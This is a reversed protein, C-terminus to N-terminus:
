AARRTAAYAAARSERLRDLIAPLEPWPDGQLGPLRALQEFEAAVEGASRCRKAPDVETLRRLWAAFEAPIPDSSPLKAALERFVVGITYLDARVDVRNELAAEEPAAYAAAAKGKECRHIKVLWAPEGFGLVKLQGRRNVMLRSPRLSRHLFGARQAAVVAAVAQQAYRVLAKVPPGYLSLDALSAGDIWEMVVGYRDRASFLRDLSAANPHRFGTLPRVAIEYGRRMQEDRCWRASLLRLVSPESDEPLRVRYTTATTGQHLVDLVVAPPLHLEEPRGARLRDLQYPTLLDSSALEEELTLGSRAASRAAAALTEHDVLGAKEIAQILGATESTSPRPNAAVAPMKLVSPDPPATAVAPAPAERLIPAADDKAQPTRLLALLRELEAQRDALEDQRQILDLEHEGLRSQLRRLRVSWGGAAAGATSVDPADLLENNEAQVARLCDVAHKGRRNWQELYHLMTALFRAQNERLAATQQAAGAKEQVLAAERGALGRQRRSWKGAVTRLKALKRGIAEDAARSDNRRSELVEAERRLDVRRLEVEELWRRERQALGAETRALGAAQEDMQRRRAELDEAVASMAGRDVALSDHGRGLMSREAALTSEARRV